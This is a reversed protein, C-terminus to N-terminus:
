PSGAPLGGAATRAGPALTWLLAALGFVCASFTLGTIRSVLREGAVWGLLWLLGLVGFVVGPALVVFVLIAQALSMASPRGDRRPVLGPDMGDSSAPDQRLVM